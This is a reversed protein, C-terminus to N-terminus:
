TPLSLRRLLDQFRPHSRICDWKSEVGVWMLRADCVEYAKELWDLAHDKEGLAAYILAINYPPIFRQASSERLIQIALHAEASNGRAAELSARRSLPETSGGSLEFAAQYEQIAQEINGMREFPKAIWLHLVWLKDNIALANRLHLLAEEDNRENYRLAGSLGHMLASLPDVQRAKKMELASEAARSTASLVIAYWRHAHVYSPNLEIARRLSREAGNWDWEMWARVAGLAAHAEALSDDIQLANDCAARARDRIDLSPADCAIPLVAYCEGLAAHALAYKPDGAVAQEFCEIARKVSAPSLQHWYHRGRLYLDYADPDPTRVQKSTVCGPLLRSQVEGAIAKGLEDQVGLVHTADRDYTDAWVHTQDSVRILQSTVRITSGERRASNELIYDATLERGIEAITKTTRKYAM